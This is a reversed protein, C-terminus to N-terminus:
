PRGRIVERAQQHLDGALSDIEQLEAQALQDTDRHLPGDIMGAKKVPFSSNAKIPMRNFTPVLLAPHFPLGMLKVIRRMTKETNGVLDEFAVLHVREPHEAKLRLARSTGERWQAMSRDIRRWEHSWARASVYWSRPNRIISILRGDPYFSWFREMSTASMLERPNFGTIWQKRAGVNLNQNDLWGNFYGTFYSDLVSRETGDSFRAFAVEYLRRHLAPPLLFPHRENARNLTKHSQKHGREFRRPLGPDYIRTWAADADATVDPALHWLRTNLEHSVTHCSPHGDFLRMMLSGGSRPLQSILALPQRVEVLDAARLEVARLIEGVIDRSATGEGHPGSGDAAPPAEDLSM